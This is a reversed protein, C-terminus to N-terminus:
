ETGDPPVTESVESEDETSTGSNYVAAEIEEEEPPTIVADETDSVDEPPLAADPEVVPEGEPEGSIDEDAVAIDPERDAAATDAPEPEPEPVPKAAEAAREAELRAAFEQRLSPFVTVIGDRGARENPDLVLKWPPVDANPGSRNFFVYGVAFGGPPIPESSWMARRIARRQYDMLPGFVHDRHDLTQELSLAEQMTGAANIMSFQQPSISLESRSKNQVTVSFVHWWTLRAVGEIGSTTDNLYVADLVYPGDRATSAHYGEATVYTKPKGGLWSCGTHAALLVLTILGLYRLVNRGGASIANATMQKGM